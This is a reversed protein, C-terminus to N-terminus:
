PAWSARIWDSRSDVVDHSHGGPRAPRASADPRPARRTGAISYFMALSRHRRLDPPVAAAAGVGDLQAADDLAEGAHDGVVADVERHAGAGDVGDDALVAGALRRQHLREVAGVPGVLARDGDVAHADSGDGRSAMSAPM